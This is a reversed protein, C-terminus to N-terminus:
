VQEDFAEEHYFANNGSKRQPYKHHVNENGDVYDYSVRKERVNYGNSGNSQHHHHQQQQQQQGHQFGFKNEDVSLLRQNSHNSNGKESLVLPQMNAMLQGSLQRHTATSSGSATHVHHHQGRHSPPVWGRSSRTSQPHHETGNAAAFNVAAADGFEFGRSTTKERRGGGKSNSFRTSKTHHRNYDDEEDDYPGYQLTRSTNGIHDRDGMSPPRDSMKYSRRKSHQVSHAGGYRDSSAGHAGYSSHGYDTASSGGRHRKTNNRDGMERLIQIGRMNCKRITDLHSHIQTGSFHRQHQSSQEMQHQHRQILLSQLADVQGSITNHQQLVRTKQQQIESKEKRLKNFEEELDQRKLEAHKLKDDATQLKKKLQENTQTLKRVEHRYQSINESDRQMAYSANLKKELLSVETESNTARSLYEQLKDEKKKMQVKLREIQENLLDVKRCKWVEILEQSRGLSDDDGSAGSANSGGSSSGRSGSAGLGAGMRDLSSFTYSTGTFSVSRHHRKRGRQSHLLKKFEERKSLSDLPDGSVIVEDPTATPRHHPSQSPSHVPSLMSSGSDQDKHKSMRRNEDELQAIRIKQMEVEKLLPESTEQENQLDQQALVLQFKLEEIEKRM